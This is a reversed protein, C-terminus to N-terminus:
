PKEWKREGITYRRGKWEAARSSWSRLTSDWTMLLFFAAALPLTFGWLLNLGHIRVVPFYTGAMVLYVIGSATAVM